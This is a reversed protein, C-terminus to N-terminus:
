ETDLEADAAVMRKATEKDEGFYWARFEWPQMIGDRVLQTKETFEQARDSVISDDWEFSMEINGTGECMGYIGGWVGIIYALERLSHELSNQIDRVAAYSRQKSNRIEEATKETDSVESLTGYALSCSFEIRRLITNLGNKLSEDRLTPSYEHYFDTDGSTNLGFTLKKFIRKHHAPMSNNKLMTQDAFVALEGGEFEWLFRTYQEDADRLLEVARSYVSVGLPSLRDVENSFPMKFYCFLPEAIDKIVFQ